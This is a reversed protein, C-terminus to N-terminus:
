ELLIRAAPDPSRCGRCRDPGGVSAGANGGVAVDLKRVRPAQEQDFRDILGRMGHRLRALEDAANLETKSCSPRASTLRQDWASLWQDLSEREGTAPARAMAASTHDLLERELDGLQMACSGDSSGARAEPAFIQPIISSLGVTILWAALLWFAAAGVYWGTGHETRESL